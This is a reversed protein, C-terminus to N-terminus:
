LHRVTGHDAKEVTELERRKAPKQAQRRGREPEILLKMFQKEHKPMPRDSEAPQRHRGGDSPRPPYFPRHWDRTRKKYSRLIATRSASKRRILTAPLPRQRLGRLVFSRFVLGSTLATPVSASSAFSRCGDGMHSLTSSRSTTTRLSPRSTGTTICSKHVKYSQM